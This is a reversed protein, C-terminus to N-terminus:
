STEPADAGSGGALRNARWARVARFLRRRKRKPEETLASDV